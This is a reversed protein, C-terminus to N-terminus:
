SDIMEIDLEKSLFAEKGSDSGVYCVYMAIPRAWNQSLHHVQMQGVYRLSHCGKVPGSGTKGSSTWVHALVPGASPWSPVCQEARIDAEVRILLYGCM